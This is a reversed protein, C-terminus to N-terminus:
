EELGVVLGFGGNSQFVNSFRPSCDHATQHSRSMWGVIRSLDTGSAKDTGCSHTPHPTGCPRIHQQGGAMVQMDVLVCRYADQLAGPRTDPKHYGQQKGANSVTLCLKPSRSM